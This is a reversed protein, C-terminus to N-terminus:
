SIIFFYNKSSLNEERKQHNRIGSFFYFNGSKISHNDNLEQNIEENKILYRNNCCTYNGM